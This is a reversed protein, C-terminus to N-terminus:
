ISVMCPMGYLFGTSLSLNKKGEIRRNCKRSNPFANSIPHHQLSLKSMSEPPAPISPRRHFTFEPLSPSLFSPWHEARYKNDIDLIGDHESGLYKALVNRLELWRDWLERLDLTLTGTTDHLQKGFVNMTVLDNVLPKIENHFYPMDFKRTEEVRQLDVQLTTYALHCLDCIELAVKRRRQSQAKTLPLLYM